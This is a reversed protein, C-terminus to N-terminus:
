KECRNTERPKPVLNSFTDNHTHTDLSDFVVVRSEQIGWMETVSLIIYLKLWMFWTCRLSYLFGRDSKKAIMLYIQKKSVEDSKSVIEM